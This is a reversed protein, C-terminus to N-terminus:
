GGHPFGNFAKRVAHLLHDPRISRASQWADNPTPTAPTPPLSLSAPCAVQLWSLRPRRDIWQRALTATDLRPQSSESALLDSPSAHSGTPWAANKRNATKPVWGGRSDRPNRAIWRTSGDGEVLLIIEV